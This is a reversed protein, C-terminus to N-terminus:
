VSMGNPIARKQAFGFLCVKFAGPSLKQHVVGLFYAFRSFSLYSPESEYGYVLADFGHKAFTNTLRRRTNCRYVTPFVDEENVDAARVGGLTASHFGNPILWSALGFYSNVNPTRICVFGGPRMVRRLESFFGDPSEIHELVNDCLSIDVSEDEVPWREGEIQRFEDLLPNTRGVPNVDIGIVKACRGRFTRLRRRALIPDEAARGRGAGVDLLVSDPRLLAGARLYFAVTSDVDTYGGFRAEPYFRLRPDIASARPEAGKEILSDTLTEAM